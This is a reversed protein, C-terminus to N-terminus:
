LPLRLRASRGSQSQLSMEAWRLHVSHPLTPQTSVRSSQLSTISKLWPMEHPAGEAVVAAPHALVMRVFGRIAVVGARATACTRRTGPAIRRLSRFRRPQRLTHKDLEILLAPAMLSRPQARSNSSGIGSGSPPV